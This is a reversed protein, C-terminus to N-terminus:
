AACTLESKFEALGGLATLMLRRHLTATDAPADAVCRCGAGKDALQALSLVDGTRERLTM